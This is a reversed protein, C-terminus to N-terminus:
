VESGAERTPNEPTADPAPAFEGSSEDEATAGANTEEFYTSLVEIV